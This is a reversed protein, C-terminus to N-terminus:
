ILYKKPKIENALLLVTGKKPRDRLGELTMQCDLIDEHKIPVASRESLLRLSHLIGALIAVESSLRSIESRQNKVEKLFPWTKNVVLDALQILGGTGGSVSFPDGM